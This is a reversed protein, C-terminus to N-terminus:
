WKLLHSNKTLSMKCILIMFNFNGTMLIKDKKDSHFNIIKAKQPAKKEKTLIQFITTTLYLM